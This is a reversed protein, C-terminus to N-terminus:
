RLCNFLAWTHLCYEVYTKLETEYKKEDFWNDMSLLLNEVVQKQEEAMKQYKLHIPWLTKGAIDRNMAYWAQEGIIDLVGQGVEARKAHVATNAQKSYSKMLASFWEQDFHTEQIRTYDLELKAIAKNASEVM